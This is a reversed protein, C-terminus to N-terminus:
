SLADLARRAARLDETDFGETFWGHVEGLLRRADERKGRRAWLRSLSMAARLEWARTGQGRAIDLAQGFAAEAAADDSSRLLEGRLRYYEPMWLRSGTAEAMALADAVTALGEETMGRKGCLEALLGHFCGVFLDNGMGRYQGITRRFDGVAASGTDHEAAIWGEFMRGYAQWQRLGHETALAVMSGVHDALTAVDGVLQDVLTAFPFANVISGAHGLDTALALGARSRELAREPFGLMWLALASHMHCCVGPDHGGYSFALSRHQEKDYLAIGQECHRRATDPEGIWLTTPLMAHHAELRLVPDDLREGIAVLEEAIRRAGVADGRGAQVFLWRGWLAQFRKVPEGLADGLEVARAYIPEVDPAGFGQALQLAPGLALLLGLEQRQREPGAPWRAVLELAQRLYAVAEDNASRRIAKTGAERLYTVAKDALEGRVAHGALREVHEGLRDAHLHEIAEVIRAHLARRRDGLLSGYAVEHTLAHKFTYELAPFLATEYLFEASQLRDLHRRLDDRPMGAIAELVDFPVDTGVVSAAQLVSKDEPSLRDIRAALLAKM